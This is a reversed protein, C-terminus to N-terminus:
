AAHHVQLTSFLSLLVVSVVQVKNSKTGWQLLMRATYNHFVSAAMHQYVTVKSDGSM